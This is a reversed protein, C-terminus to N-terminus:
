NNIGLYKKLDSLKAFKAQYGSDTKISITIMDDDKLPETIRNDNFYSNIDLQPTQPIQTEQSALGYKFLESFSNLLENPNLDNLGMFGTGEGEDLGM